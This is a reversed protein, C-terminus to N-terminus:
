YIRFSYGIVMNAQGYFIKQDARESGGKPTIVIGPLTLFGTQGVAQLFVHKFFFFKLGAFVSIGIGTFHPRDDNTLGFIKANTWPMPFNIGAGLVSELAVKETKNILLLDHRELNLQLLNLGDSHEMRVLSNHNMIIPDNNYVGAYTHSASEDISGSITVEAENTTQYKMHDWGASVVYHDTIYFGGRANFQPVTIKNINFYSDFSFNEPMDHAPVNYLTFDYNSGKLHIDSKAYTDRNYGWFLFFNGKPNKISYPNRPTSEQSALILNLMLLSWLLISTKKNIM